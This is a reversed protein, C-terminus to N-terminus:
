CRKNKRRRVTLWGLVDGLQQRPHAQEGLSCTNTILDLNLDWGCAWVDDMGTVDHLIGGYGVSEVVDGAGCRAGVGYGVLNM